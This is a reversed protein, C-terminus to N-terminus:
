FVFNYSLSFVNINQNRINSGPPADVLTSMQGIHARLYEAKIKAKASISYSTGLAWSNQDYAILQDAGARQSANIM